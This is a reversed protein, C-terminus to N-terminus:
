NQALPISVSNNKWKFSDQLIFALGTIIGIPLAITFITSMTKDKIEIKNISNEELKTKIFEGRKKTVGYYTDGVKEIRKFILNKDYKTKVKVKIKQQSAERLSVPKNKYVSCSHAFILMLLM